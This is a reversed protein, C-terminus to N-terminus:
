PPATPSTTPTTAAPATTTTTAVPATTTTTAVPGTTTTTTPGPPCPNPSCSGPGADQGAQASSQAPTLLMCTDFAGGASSQVCCQTQTPTTTTTTAAPGTTTTTASPATTTTVAPSTTTTTAAPSTTTTSGSVCPNHACSRAGLSTGGLASCHDPTKQGCEGQICCAVKFPPGQGQGQNAQATAGTLVFAVALIAVLASLGFFGCLTNRM